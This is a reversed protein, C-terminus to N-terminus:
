RLRSRANGYQFFAILHFEDKDYNRPLTGMPGIQRLTRLVEEDLIRSGSSELLKVNVIEGKRNFTIRVPTVGEVGKLQAEQPYRWVGYVATEFRRLFSGFIVDNSNLFRTDGDAVDDAFKRRYNEELQAMKSASPMLRAMGTASGPQQQSPPAQPPKRRLLEGVSSSGPVPKQAQASQQQPKASPAVRPPAAEQGRRPSTEKLVRRRQDSPRAKEPEKRLAETKLQPMDQLDIFTPESITPPQKAPWLYILAFGAIHLLLSVGLLYLFTTEVYRNSSDGRSSLTVGGSFWM